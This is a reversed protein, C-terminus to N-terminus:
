DFEWTGHLNCFIKVKLNEPKEKLVFSVLPRTFPTLYVRGLSIERDFLEIWQIFHGAESPHEISGIKVNVKIKDKGEALDVVPVHKEGVESEDEKKWIKKFQAEM